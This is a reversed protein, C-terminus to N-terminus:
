SKRIKLFLYLNSLLSIVFLIIIAFNWKKLGKIESEINEIKQSLQSKVEPLLNQEETIIEQVEELRKLEEPSPGLPRNGPPPSGKGEGLPSPELPQNAPSPSDKSDGLPFPEGEQAISQYSISLLFLVALVFLFILKLFKKKM